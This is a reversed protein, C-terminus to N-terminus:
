VARAQRGTESGSACKEGAEMRFESSRDNGLLGIADARCQRCHHMQRMDTQCTSRMKNLEAPSTGPYNEFLSGRAPILPMINTIFVGLGKLEKVIEPIHLDNVGKIM